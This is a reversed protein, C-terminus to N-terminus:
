ALQALMVAGLVAIGAGAARAVIARGNRLAWGLAIGTLHLLLTASLMGILTAGAGSNGALEYGHALGHFLAFVGVLAAALWAPLRLRLAALLGIVLVSAAIMPEVGPLEVGQLGLLAGVLLLAAFGLPAALLDPLARRATLASWLGVALMAALHDLGTLPHMFGTVFGAQHHGDVGVHAQSLTPVLALMLWAANRWRSSPTTHSVTTRPASTFMM